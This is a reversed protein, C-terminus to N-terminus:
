LADAICDLELASLIVWGRVRRLVVVVIVLSEFLKLKNKLHSSTCDKM